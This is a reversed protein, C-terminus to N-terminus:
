FAPYKLRLLKLLYEASHWGGWNLRTAQALMAKQNYVPIVHTSTHSSSVVLGTSGKNHRYSFLSDIGYAVSPAGYCEFLTENMAAQTLKGHM